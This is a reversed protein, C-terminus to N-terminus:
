DERRVDPGGAQVPIVSPLERGLILMDRSRADAWVIGPLSGWARFGHQSFLGRSAANDHWIFAMLRDIGWHPAEAMAHQLLTRGVGRRQWASAIYISVEGACTCGPRDGFGLLSLWGVPEGGAHAVWLPRRHARHAVMWESLGGAPLPLLRSASLLRGNIRAQADASCVSPLPLSENYIATIAVADSALAPRVALTESRACPSPAPAVSAPTTALM